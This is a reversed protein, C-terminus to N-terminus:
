RFRFYYRTHQPTDDFRLRCVFRLFRRFALAFYGYHRRPM